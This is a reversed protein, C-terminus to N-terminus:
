IENRRSADGLHMLVSIMQMTWGRIGKVNNQILYNRGSTTIKIVM